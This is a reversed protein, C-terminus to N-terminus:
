EYYYNLYHARCMPQYTETGGVHVQRSGHGRLRATFIATRMQSCQGCNARLKEVSDSHPVLELVQGFPRRLFDGDLGACILHKGHNDIAQTVFPFLDPFFQSEEILIHTAVRYMDEKVLPLLAACAIAAHSDGDHSVIKGEKSYRDDIAHTICLIITKPDKELERIRRLLRKTKGSFMPGIILELSM